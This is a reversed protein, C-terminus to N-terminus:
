RSRARDKMAVLEISSKGFQRSIPILYREAFKKEKRKKKESKQSM